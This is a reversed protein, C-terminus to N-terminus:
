LFRSGGPRPASQNSFGLSDSHINPNQWETDRPTWLLPSWMGPEHQAGLILQVRSALDLSAPVDLLSPPM